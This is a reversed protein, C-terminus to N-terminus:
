LFVLRKNEGFEKAKLAFIAFNNINIIVDKNFGKYQFCLKKRNDILIASDLLM